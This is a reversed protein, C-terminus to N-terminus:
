LAMALVYYGFFQAGAVSEQRWRLKMRKIPLWQAHAQPSYAM